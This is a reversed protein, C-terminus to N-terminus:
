ARLSNLLFDKSSNIQGNLIAKDIDSMCYLPLENGIHLSMGVRELLTTTRKPSSPNPIHIVNKGFITSFAMAHFSNTCVADANGILGLFEQPGIQPVLRCGKHRAALTPHIEIAELGRKEAYELGAQLLRKDEFLFYFLMYNSQMRPQRILKVWKSEDLLFVPDMVVKIEKNALKGVQMELGFERLSIHSYEPLLRCCANEQEANLASTGLSAAYAIKKTCIGEGWYLTDNKTLRTNWIQDSGFIVADYKNLKDCIASQEGSEENLCLLNQKFAEFAEAQPARLPYQLVRKVRGRLPVGKAFPNISYTDKFTDPYYNAIEVTHGQSKLFEKLAYAQLLAGYNHAFQFTLIALKM